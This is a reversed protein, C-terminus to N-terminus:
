NDIWWITQLIDFNQLVFQKLFYVKRWLLESRVPYVSKNEKKKKKKSSTEWKNSNLSVRFLFALGELRKWMWIQHDFLPYLSVPHKHGWKWFLQGAHRSGLHGRTVAEPCRLGLLIIWLILLPWFSKYFFRNPDFKWPVAMQPWMLKQSGSYSHQHHRGQQYHAESVHHSFM